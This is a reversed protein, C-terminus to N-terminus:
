ARSTPVEAPGKSTWAVPLVSAAHLDVREDVGTIGFGGVHEEALRIRLPRKVVAEEVLQLPV